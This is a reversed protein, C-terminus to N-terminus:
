SLGQSTRGSRDWPRSIRDYLEIIRDTVAREDFHELAYRRGTQGLRHRLGKDTLLTQLRDALATADNLPVLFGTQGNVIANRSGLVDTAVMPRGCVAAEIVARPLGEKVSTLVCVDAAATLEPVDDRYGLFRVFDTLGNDRVWAEYDPRKYGEGVVNILFSAGRHRLIRAAQLLQTHNKVPELRSVCLIVPPDNDPPERVPFWDLQVGNGVLVCKGAPAIRGRRCEEIDGQNQFLLTDAMFCLFRQCHIWLKKELSSMSEHHHFGHVQAVVIPRRALAAALVGMLWIVSGHVHVLDIRRRRLLRYTKWVGALLKLPSLGRPADVVHVTHGKARLMGVYEGGSCLIENQFRGTANIQLVRQDLLEKASRDTNIMDLVRYRRRKSVPATDTKRAPEAPEVLNSSPMLSRNGATSFNRWVSSTGPKWM